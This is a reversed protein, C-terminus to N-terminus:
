SGCHGSRYFIVGPVFDESQKEEKDAGEKEQRQNGVRRSVHRGPDPEALNRGGVPRRLIEDPGKSRDDGTKEVHHHAGSGIEQRNNQETKAARFQKVGLQPDCWAHSPDEKKEDGAGAQQLQLRLMQLTPPRKEIDLSGAAPESIKNPFLQEEGPHSADAGDEQETADVHATENEHRPEARDV